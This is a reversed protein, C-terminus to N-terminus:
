LCGPTSNLYVVVHYLLDVSIRVPIRLASGPKDSVIFLSVSTREPADTCTLSVYRPSPALFFQPNRARSINPQVSARPGRRIRVDRIRDCPRCRSEDNKTLTVSRNENRRVYRDYSRWPRFFFQMGQIRNITSVRTNTSVRRERDNGSNQQQASARQSAVGLLFMWSCPCVVM